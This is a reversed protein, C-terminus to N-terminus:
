ENTFDEKRSTAHERLLNQVEKVLTESDLGSKRIIKDVRQRLFEWDADTLDKATV